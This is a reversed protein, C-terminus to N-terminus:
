TQRAVSTTTDPQAPKTQVGVKTEAELPMPIVNGEDPQVAFWAKAADETVLKNIYHKKCIERTNGMEDSVLDINKVTAYRFTGSAHRLDDDIWVIGALKALRNPTTRIDFDKPLVPGSVKRYPALWLRLNAAIGVDRPKGKKGSTGVPLHIFDEGIM